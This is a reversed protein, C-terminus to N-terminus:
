HKNFFKEKPVLTSKSDLTKRFIISKVPEAPVAASTVLSGPCPLRFLPLLLALLEPPLPTLPTAAV